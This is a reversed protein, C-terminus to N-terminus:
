GNRLGSGPDLLLLLLTRPLFNVTGVNKTTVFIVFNFFSNRKQIPLSVYKLWNVFNVEFTTVLSEFIHTQSRPDVTSSSAPICNLASSSFFTLLSYLYFCSPVTSAVDISFDQGKKEKCGM